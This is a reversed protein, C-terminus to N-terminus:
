LCLSRHMILFSHVKIFVFFIIKMAEMRSTMISTNTDHEAVGVVVPVVVAECVVVVAAPGITLISLKANLGAVSVTFAPVATVQVLLSEAACLILDSLKLEGSMALPFVKVKVKVLLPVKSYEQPIWGDM